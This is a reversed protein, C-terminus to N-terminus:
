GSGAATSISSAEPTPRITRAIVAPRISAGQWSVAPAPAGLLYGQGLTIELSRLMALEAETEIGEAILECGSIRAFYSLGTILAQRAPDRDIDAVLSHDLKVFHPRLEVIHHLSAYGAGADDVSLRVGGFRALAARIEGYDRVAAHETVELVVPRQASALLPSLRGVETILAPAANISVWGVAPLANAGELAMAACLAELELGLGVAHAEALQEDPRIGSEFRTLAEWGVIGGAALDHIPQYVPALARAALIREVEARTEAEWRRRRLWPALLVGAITALEVTTPLHEAIRDVAGTGVTGVVLVGLLQAGQRLPACASILAAGAEVAKRGRQRDAPRTQWREVWPGLSARRYLHAAQSASLPRGVELPSGPPSVAALPVATVDGAFSIIAAVEVGALAVVEACIAAATQEPAADARLRGIATRVQARERERRHRDAATAREKTVDRQVAVYATTGGAEDRIPSITTRVLCPSGDQHRQVLEGSWAGRAALRRWVGERFLPSQHGKLLMRPNAGVIEARGYGSMREFAANVYRISGAADTIVIAESAQEVAAALLDHGVGLRRVRVEQDVTAGSADGAVGRKM